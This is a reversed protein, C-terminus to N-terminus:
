VTLPVKVQALEGGSTKPINTPQDCQWAMHLAKTRPFVGLQSKTPMLYHTTQLFYILESMYIDLRHGSDKLVALNTVDDCRPNIRALCVHDSAEVMLCLNYTRKNSTHFSYNDLQHHTLSINRLYHAINQM